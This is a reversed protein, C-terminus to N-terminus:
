IMGLAVAKTAAQHRSTVDFKQLINRVHYTVGHESINLLKSIEWTNKGIAVWRLVELERETLQPVQLLMETKIIQRMTEHTLTALLLGWALMEHVHKRSDAGSGSMVLSLLAVDGNRAHIPFTVGQGLGYMRAEDKFAQQIEGVYMADSWVLPCISDLAYSVIPDIKSYHQKKYTKLWDVNYNSEIREVYQTNGTCFRGGYLFFDFGLKHIIELLSERIKESTECANIKMIDSILKDNDFGSKKFCIRELNDFTIPMINNTASTM